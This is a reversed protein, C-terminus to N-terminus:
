PRMVTKLGRGSEVNAFASPADDLPFPEGVFADLDITTAALWEVARAYTLPTGGFAGVLAHQQYHMLNLDIAHEPSSSPFGAFVLVRGNPAVVANATEVAAGVGAALVVVDWGAAGGRSRLDDVSMDLVAVSGAGLM